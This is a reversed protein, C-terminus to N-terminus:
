SPVDRQVKKRLLQPPFYKCSSCKDIYESFDYDDNSPTWYHEYPCCRKGYIVECAYLKSQM